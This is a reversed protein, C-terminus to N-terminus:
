RWRTPTFDAAEGSRLASILCLVDRDIVRRLDMAVGTQPHVTVANFRSELAQIFRRVTDEGLACQGDACRQEAPDLSDTHLLKLLTADVVYARYTEMLDSALALHAGGPVHLWGLHANLGRAELLGAVAHYLISYGLSLLANVADPPPHSVRRPMPWAAPLLAAFAPWYLAAAAGEHGRLSELSACGALERAMQRLRAPPDVGAAAEATAEHRQSRALVLASHHLKAAVLNRAIGLGFGAEGHRAFQAQLLPALRGSAPEFRGYCRGLYSLYAVSCGHRAALQLAATSAQINGFLFIAEVNAAPLTFALSGHKDVRYRQNDVGLSAQADVLYLTRQLPALPPLSDAADAAAETASEDEPPPATEPASPAPPTATLAPAERPAERWAKPVAISRVFHWGIFELGEDLHVIRTKLPNLRLALRQLVERTLELAADARGRSKALVVFDDAYRVLVHEADLLAEDLKDLYLNALLPSIPSGQPLGCQPEIREAGDQIPAALWQAVLARLAPEPALTALCDLLAVHPVSDFFHEIDADVVWRYGQRQYLEIREVAQRVGRGQRYAFACDELEAEVKPTLALAVSTQLIRDRVCPVALGRPTKGPRPLWVRLLPTPRYRGDAVQAALEGLVAHIRPTLADITEGDVGAMGHNACVKDWALLLHAGGLAQRLLPGLELPGASAAGPPNPTASTEM